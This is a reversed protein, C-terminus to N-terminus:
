SPEPYRSIGTKRCLTDDDARVRFRSLHRLIVTDAVIHDRLGSAPLASVGSYGYRFPDLSMGALFYEADPGHTLIAFILAIVGTSPRFARHWNRSSFLTRDIAGRVVSRALSYVLRASATQGYTFIDWSVVPIHYGTLRTIYRPYEQSRYRTVQSARYGLPSLTEVVAAPDGDGVCILSDVHRDRYSDLRARDAASYATNRASRLVSTAVFHVTREPSSVKPLTGIGGNVCYATDCAVPTPGPRAGLILVRHNTSDASSATSM